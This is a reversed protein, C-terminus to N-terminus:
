HHYNSCNHISPTDLKMCGYIEMREISVFTFSFSHLIVHEETAGDVISFETSFNYVVEFPLAVFTAVVFAVEHRFREDVVVYTLRDRRALPGQVDQRRIKDGTRVAHPFEFDGRM